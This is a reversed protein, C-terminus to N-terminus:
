QILGRGRAQAVLRARDKAELIEIAEGYQPHGAALYCGRSWEPLWISGAGECRGCPILEGDRDREGPFGRGRCEYCPARGWKVRDLLDPLLSDIGNSAEETARDRWDDGSLDPINPADTYDGWVRCGRSGIQYASHITAM